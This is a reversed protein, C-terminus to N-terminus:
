IKNLLREIAVRSKWHKIQKERRRADVLTSYKETYILMWPRGRKTSRSLGRNHQILRVRCDHTSGIYYQGTKLSKLIYCYYFKSLIPVKTPSEVIVLNM